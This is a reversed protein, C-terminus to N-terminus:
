GARERGCGSFNIEGATKRGVTRENAIRSDDTRGGQRQAIKHRPLIDLRRHCGGVKKMKLVLANGEAAAIVRRACHIQDEEVGIQDLLRATLEELRIRKYDGGGADRHEGDRLGVGIDRHLRGIEAQAEARRRGVRVVRVRAGRGRAVGEGAVGVM